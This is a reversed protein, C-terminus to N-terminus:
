NHYTSKIKGWTSPIAPVEQCHGPGIVGNNFDDIDDVVNETSCTDVPAQGADGGDSDNCGSAVTALLLLWFRPGHM